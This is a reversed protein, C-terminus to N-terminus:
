YSLTNASTTKTLSCSVIQSLVRMGDQEEQKRYIIKLHTPFKMTFSWAWMRRILEWGLLQHQLWSQFKALSSPM